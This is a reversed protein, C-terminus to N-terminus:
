LQQRLAAVTASDIGRIAGLGDVSLKGGAENRFEIIEHANAPGVGWLADLEEETATNLDVRSTKGKRRTGSRHPTADAHEDQPSRRALKNFNSQRGDATKEQILLALRNAEFADFWQDWGLPELSDGGSYGPFDLRLIGPDNGSGTRKVHAPEGGRAEAWQQITAHDITRQASAM